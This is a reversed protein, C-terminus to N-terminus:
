DRIVAGVGTCWLESGRMFLCPVRTKLTLSEGRGERGRGEWWRVGWQRRRGRETLLKWESFNFYSNYVAMQKAHFRFKFVRVVPFSHIVFRRMNNDCRWEEGM